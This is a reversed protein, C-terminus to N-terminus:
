HPLSFIRSVLSTKTSLCVAVCILAIYVLQASYLYTDYSVYEPCNVETMRRKGSHWVTHCSFDNNPVLSNFHSCSLLTARKEFHIKSCSTLVVPLLMVDSLLERMRRVSLKLIVKVKWYISTSLGLMMIIQILKWRRSLIYKFFLFISVSLFGAITVM